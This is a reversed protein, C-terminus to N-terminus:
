APRPDRRLATLAALLWALAVLTASGEAIWGHAFAVTASIVFALAITAGSLLTTVRQQARIFIAAAAVVLIGTVVLVLAGTWDVAYAIIVHESSEDTFAGDGDEGGSGIAVPSQLPDEVVADTNYGGDESTSWAKVQLYQAFVVTGFGAALTAASSVWRRRTVAIALIVAMWPEPGLYFFWQDGREVDVADFSAVWASYVLWGGALIVGGAFVWWPPRPAGVPAARDPATSM